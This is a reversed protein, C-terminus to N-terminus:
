KGNWVTTYYMIFGGKIIDLSLKTKGMRTWASKKNSM